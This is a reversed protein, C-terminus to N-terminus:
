SRRDRIYGKEIADYGMEILSKKYDIFDIKLEEKAKSNNVGIRKGWAPLAAKADAM